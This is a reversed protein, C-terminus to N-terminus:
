RRARTVTLGAVRTTPADRSWTQTRGAPLARAPAAVRWADLQLLLEHALLTAHFRTPVSVQAVVAGRNSLERIARDSGRTIAVQRLGLAPLDLVAVLHPELWRRERWVALVGAQDPRELKAIADQAYRAATQEQRLSQPHPRIVALLQELRGAPLRATGRDKGHLWRQVTRRSVELAAAVAATDPRGRPDRGFVIGVVARLRQYTWRSERVRTPGIMPEATPM